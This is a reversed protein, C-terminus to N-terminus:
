SEDDDDDESVFQENYIEKENPIEEDYAPMGFSLPLSDLKMYANRLISFKKKDSESLETTAGSTENIDAM